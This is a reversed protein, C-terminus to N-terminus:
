LVSACLLVQTTQSLVSKLTQLLAGLQCQAQQVQEEHHKHADGELSFSRYNSITERCGDPTRDQGQTEGKAEGQAEVHAEGKTEGQTGVGIEDCRAGAMDGSAIENSLNSYETLAEGISSLLVGSSPPSTLPLSFNESALSTSISHTISGSNQQETGIEEKEKRSMCDEKGVEHDTERTDEHLSRLRMQLHESERLTFICKKLRRLM